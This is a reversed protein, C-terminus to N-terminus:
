YKQQEEILVRLMEAGHEEFIKSGKRGAEIIEELTAGGCQDGCTGRDRWREYRKLDESELFEHAKLLDAKCDESLADFEADTIGLYRAM